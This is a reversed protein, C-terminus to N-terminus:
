VASLPNSTQVDIRCESPLEAMGDKDGLEASGRAMSQTEGRRVGAGGSGTGDQPLQAGGGLDGEIVVHGGGDGGM